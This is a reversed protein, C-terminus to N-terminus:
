FTRQIHTEFFYYRHFLFLCINSRFFPPYLGPWTHASPQVNPKFILQDFDFCVPSFPSTKLYFSPTLSSQFLVYSLMYSLNSTKLNQHIWLFLLMLTKLFIFLHVFYSAGFLLDFLISRLVQIFYLFHSDLQGWDQFHKEKLTGSMMVGSKWSLFNLGM